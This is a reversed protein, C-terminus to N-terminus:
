TSSDLFYPQPKGLLYGQIYDVGKSVLWDMQAQTEVGETIVKLKLAKAMGIMALILQKSEESYELDDVFSKDIKIVDVPLTKLVSLSAFGTGFDDLLIRCGKSKLDQLAMNVWDLNEMTASETVEFNFRSLPLDYRQAIQELKTVLDENRFQLPSLNVGIRVGADLQAAVLDQCVKEFLVYGLQPMLGNQEAYNIFDNPYVMKRQEDFIRILAEYKFSVSPSEVAFVPQYQMQIHASPDELARWILSALHSSHLLDQEQSEDFIEYRNRGSRKAVYMASDARRLLDEANEGHEPYFAVGISAGLRHVGNVTVYPSALSQLLEDVVSLVNAKKKFRSLVIVFEDGGIRAAIDTERIRSVIRQTAEKLILDGEDHGFHDNVAKFKDLDLFLVALPQQGKETRHLRASLFQKLLSRNPLQTLSDYFALKDLHNQFAKRETIDSFTAAYYNKGNFADHIRSIQLWEPFVEGSKRKNWIEGAWWGHHQLDLWMKQYFDPSHRGSSLIAPSKGIVESELYGTIECFAQNVRVIKSETDTIMVAERLQEIILNDIRLAQDSMMKFHLPQIFCLYATMQHWTVKVKSLSLTFSVGNKFSFIHDTPCEDSDNKCYLQMLKLFNMSSKKDMYFRFNTQLFSERTKKFVKAAFHNIELVKGHSDLLLMPFHADLFLSKFFLSTEIERERLQEGFFSEAEVESIQQQLIANQSELELLQANLRHNEEKFAALDQRLFDEPFQQNFLSAPELNAHKM